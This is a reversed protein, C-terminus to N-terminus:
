SKLNAVTYSEAVEMVSCYVPRHDGTFLIKQQSRASETSRKNRKKPVMKWHPGNSPARNFPLFFPPQRSIIKTSFLKGNVLLQSSLEGSEWVVFTTAIFATQSDMFMRRRRMGDAGDIM